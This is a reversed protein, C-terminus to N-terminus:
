PQPLRTARKIGRFQSVAEREAIAVFIVARMAVLDGRRAYLQECIAFPNIGIRDWFALEGVRHLADQDERHCGGDLPLSWRDDPKRGMGSRKGHAGSQLRVHAAEGAPDMGCALCPCQRVLALYGPNVVAIVDRDPAVPVRALIGPRKLLEGPRSATALRQPFTVSM